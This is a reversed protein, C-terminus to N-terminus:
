NRLYWANIDSRFKCFVYIYIYKYVINYAMRVCADIYLWLHTYVCELLKEINISSYSKHTNCVYITCM